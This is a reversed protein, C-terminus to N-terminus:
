DDQEVEEGLENLVKKVIPRIREELPDPMAKAEERQIQRVQSRVVTDRKADHVASMNASLASEAAAMREVQLAALIEPDVQPVPKRVRRLAGGIAAAVAAIAEGLSIGSYLGLLTAKASADVEGSADPLLDDMSSFNLASLRKARTDIAM